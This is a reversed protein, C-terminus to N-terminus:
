LNKGYISMATMKTMHKLGNIYVKAGGGRGLSAGCSVSAQNALCNLLLHKFFITIYMRPDDLLNQCHGWLVFVIEGPGKDIIKM